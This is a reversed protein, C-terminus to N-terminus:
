GWFTEVVAYGATVLCGLAVFAGTLWQWRSPKSREQIVQTEM